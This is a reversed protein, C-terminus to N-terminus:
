GVGHVAEWLARATCLRAKVSGFKIEDGPTIAGQTTPLKIGNVRTHNKSGADRLSLQNDGHYEIWAHFKSVSRHRLVVDHNRARGVSIRDLFASPASSRKAVPVVFHPQQLLKPPVQDSTSVNAKLRHRDDRRESLLASIARADHTATSFALGDLRHQGTTAEDLVSTARLGRTLEDDPDHLAILLFPTSGHLAMFQEVTASRCHGM